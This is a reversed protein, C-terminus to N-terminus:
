TSGRESPPSAMRPVVGWGAINIMLRAMLNNVMVGYDSVRVRFGIVGKPSWSPIDGKPLLWHSIRHFYVLYKFIWDIIYMHHHHALPLQPIIYSLRIHSLFNCFSIHRFYTRPLWHSISDVVIHSFHALFSSLPLNVIDELMIM